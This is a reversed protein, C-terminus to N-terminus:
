GEEKIEALNPVDIVFVTMCIFDNVGDAGEPKYYFDTGNDSEMEICEYFRFRCFKGETSYFNDM